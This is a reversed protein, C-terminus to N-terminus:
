RRINHTDNGIKGNIRDLIELLQEIKEISERVDIDLTFEQREQNYQFCTKSDPSDSIAQIKLNACEQIAPKSLFRKAEEWTECLIHFVFTSLIPHQKYIERIYATQEEGMIRIVNTHINDSQETGGWYEKAFWEPKVDAELALSPCVRYDESPSSVLLPEKYIASGDEAYHDVAALGNIGCDCGFGKRSECNLAHEM